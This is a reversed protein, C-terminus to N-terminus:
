KNKRKVKDSRGNIVSLLPLFQQDIIKEEDLKKNVKTGKIVQLEPQLIIGYDILDERSIDLINDCIMDEIMDLDGTMEKIDEFCLTLPIFRTTEEPYPVYAETFKGFENGNIIHYEEKLLINEMLTGELTVVGEEIVIGHLTIIYGCEKAVDTLIYSIDGTFSVMYTLDEDIYDRTIIAKNNDKTKIVFRNTGYMSEPNNM